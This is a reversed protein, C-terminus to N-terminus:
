KARKAIEKLMKSEKSELEVLFKKISKMDSRLSRNLTMIINKYRRLFKYSNKLDKAKRLDNSLSKRYHKMFNILTSEPTKEQNLIAEYVDNVEVVYKSFSHNIEVIYNQYNEIQNVKYNNLSEIENNSTSYIENATLTLVRIASNFKRNVSMGEKIAEEIEKVLKLHHQITNIIEKYAMLETGISRETYSNIKSILEQKKQDLRELKSKILNIEYDLLDLSKILDSFELSLELYHQKYLELKLEHTGVLKLYITKFNVRSSNEIKENKEFIEAEISILRQEFAKKKKLLNKFHLETIEIGKLEKIIKKLNRHL